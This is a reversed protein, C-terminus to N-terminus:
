NSCRRISGQAVFHRVWPRNPAVVPPVGTEKWNFKLRNHKGDRAVAWFIKVRGSDNSLAGYKAANTALEHLALSFSLAHQTGVM